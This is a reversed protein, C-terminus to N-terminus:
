LENKANVCSPGNTIDKIANKLSSIYRKWFLNLCRQIDDFLICTECGCMMKKRDMMMKIRCCSTKLIKQIKSESILVQNGDTAGIIDSIMHNHLERPNCTMFLKPVCVAKHTIPDRVIRGDRDHKIITDGKSPNFRIMDNDQMWAELDDLLKDSYKTCKDDDDIIIWGDANSESIAERKKLAKTIIRHGASTSFGLLKSLARTSM